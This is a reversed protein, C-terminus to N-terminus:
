LGKGLSCTLSLVYHISVHVCVVCLLLLQVSRVKSDFLETWKTTEWYTDTLSDLLSEGEEERAGLDGSVAGDQGPTQLLHDALACGKRCLADILTAKQKDMDSRLFCSGETAPVRVWPGWAERFHSCAAEESAGFVSVCSKVCM